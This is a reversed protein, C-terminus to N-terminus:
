RHLEDDAYPKLTGTNGWGVAESLVARRFLHNSYRLKVLPDEEDLEDVPIYEGDTDHGMVRGTWRSLRLSIDPRSLTPTDLYIVLNMIIRGLTAFLLVSFMPEGLFMELPGYASSGPNLVRALNGPGGLYILPILLVMDVMYSLSPGVMWNGRIPYTGFFTSILASTFPIQGKGLAVHLMWGEQAVVLSRLLLYLLLLTGTETGVLHTVMIGIVAWLGYLLEKVGMHLICLLSGQQCRVMDREVDWSAVELRVEDLSVEGAYYRRRLTRLRSLVAIFGVDGTIGETPKPNGREKVVAVVTVVVRDQDPGEGPCIKEQTHGRRLGV